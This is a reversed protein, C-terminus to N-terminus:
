LAEIEQGLDQRLWGGALAKYLAVHAGTARTQADAAADEALLQMRQVDLVEYYDIAGARFREDALRAAEASQEAARLLAKAEENNRAVRLLANETEELALQVTQQYYALGSAAEADSADIRARVRGIDLFSWDVGLALLHTDSGSGFLSHSNSASGIMGQLTLRPFLDATAIGIRATAAQLRAEAAAIDPRRRLLEAPTGSSIPAQLAPLAAADGLQQSITRVPQATLVALRQEAVGIMTQYVSISSVTTEWQARARLVDMQSGRGSDIRAQVLALTRAQNDANGRAVRLRQQAGRLMVYTSAVEGSVAVRVARVDAASAMAEAGQAEVSRRVRGFLDLEWGANAQLQAIDTDRESRRAGFAQDESILQHGLVGSATVTPYRDLRALRLMARAADHRSIAQQLDLNAMQAQRVLQALLSDGFGQWFYADAEDLPLVVQSATEDRTFRDPLTPEERQYDPGVTCGALFCVLVMTVWCRSM